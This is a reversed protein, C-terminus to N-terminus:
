QALRVRVDDIWGAGADLLMASVGILTTGDPVAARVSVTQWDRDGSLPSSRVQKLISLPLTRHVKGIMDLVLLWGDPGVAKTKMRALLEIEKGTPFGTMPVEQGILGYVETKTRRMYFVSNGPEVDDPVVKMEYAPDGAHQELRWGPVSNGVMAQQFDGNKLPLDQANAM